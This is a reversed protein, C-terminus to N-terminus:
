SRNKLWDRAKQNTDHRYLVKFVMDYIDIGEKQAESDLWKFGDALEPDSSSLFVLEDVMSKFFDTNPNDEM